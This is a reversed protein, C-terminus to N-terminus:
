DVDIGNKVRPVGAFLAARRNSFGQAPFVIGGASQRYGELRADVPQGVKFVVSHRVPGVPIEVALRKIWKAVPEALRFETVAVEVHRRLGNNGPLGKAGIHRHGISALDRSILNDLEIEFERWDLACGVDGETTKLANMEFRTCALLNMECQLCAIQAHNGLVAIRDDSLPIVGDADTSALRVGSRCTHGAVEVNVALVGQGFLRDVCTSGPQMNVRIVSRM